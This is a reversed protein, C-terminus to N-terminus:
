LFKEKSKVKMQAVEGEIYDQAEERAYSKKRVNELQAGINNNIKKKKAELESKAAAEKGRNEEPNRHDMRGMM